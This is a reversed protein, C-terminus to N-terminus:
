PKAVAASSSTARPRAVAWRRRIGSGPGAPMPRSLSDRRRHGQNWGSHFTVLVHHAAYPDTAYSSVDDSVSQGNVTSTDIYSWDVGGDTSKWVGQARGCGHRAWLLQSDFCDGAM